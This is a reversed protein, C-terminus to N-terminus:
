WGLGRARKPTAMIPTGRSTYGVVGGPAVPGPVVTIHSPVYGGSAYTGADRKVREVFGTTITTHSELLEAWEGVAAANQNELEIRHQFEGAFRYEVFYKISGRRLAAASGKVASLDMVVLIDLLGDGPVLEWRSTLCTMAEPVNMLMRRRTVTLRADMTLEALSHVIGITGSGMGHDVEIETCRGNWSWNWRPDMTM